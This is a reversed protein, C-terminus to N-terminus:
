TALGHVKVIVWEEDKEVKGNGLSKSIKDRHQLQDEVSTETNPHLAVGTRVFAALEVAKGLPLVSDCDQSHTAPTSSLLALL